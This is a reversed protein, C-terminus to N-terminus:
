GSSWPQEIANRIADIDKSVGNGFSAILSSRTDSIWPRLDSINSKRIMTQFGDLLIRATALAPVSKEINAVIVADTKTLNNQSTTMM